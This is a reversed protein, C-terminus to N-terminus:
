VARGITIFVIPIEEFLGTIAEVAYGGGLLACGIILVLKILYIFTQEQVQICNQALALVTAVVGCVFLPVITLLCAIQLAHSTFSDM